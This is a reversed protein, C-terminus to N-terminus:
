KRLIKEEMEKTLKGTKCYESLQEDNLKLIQELHPVLVTAEVHHFATLITISSILEELLNEFNIRSIEEFKGEVQKTFVLFDPEEFHTNEHHIGNRLDGELLNKILNLDIKYQKELEELKKKIKSLDLHKENPNLGAFFIIRKLKGWLFELLSAYSKKLSFIVEEMPKTKNDHDLIAIKIQKSTQLIVSDRKDDKFSLSSVLRAEFLKEILFSYQKHFEKFIILLDPRNQKNSLTVLGLSFKRQYEIFKKISERPTELFKEQREKIDELIGMKNLCVGM